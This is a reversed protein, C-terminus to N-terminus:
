KLGKFDYNPITVPPNGYVLVIHEQSQLKISRPDGNSEKGNVYAKVPMGSITGFFAHSDSKTQQWIDMFQGLTFTMASPAEM